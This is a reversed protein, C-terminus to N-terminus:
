EVYRANQLSVRRLVEVLREKVDAGAISYGRAQCEGLPPPQECDGIVRGTRRRAESGALVRSAREALRAPQLLVRASEPRRQQWEGVYRRDYKM